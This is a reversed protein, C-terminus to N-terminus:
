PFILSSLRKNNSDAETKIGYLFIVRKHKAFVVFVESLLNFFLKEFTEKDFEFEIEKM